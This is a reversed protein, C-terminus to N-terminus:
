HQIRGGQQGDFAVTKGGRAARHGRRAAAAQERTEHDEDPRTIQDGGAIHVGAVPRRRKGAAGLEAHAQQGHGYQRAQDRDQELPKRRAEGEGGVEIKRLGAPRM